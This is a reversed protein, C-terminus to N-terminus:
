IFRSTCIRSKRRQNLRTCRWWSISTKTFRVHMTMQHLVFFRLQHVVSVRLHLFSRRRVFGIGGTLSVVPNGLSFPRRCFHSIKSKNRIKHLAITNCYTACMDLQGVLSSVRSWDSSSRRIRRQAYLRMSVRMTAGLPRPINERVM